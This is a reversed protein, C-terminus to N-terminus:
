KTRGNALEKKRALAMTRLESRHEEPLSKVDDSRKALVADLDVKSGVAAIEKAVEKLIKNTVRTSVKGKADHGGSHLPNDKMYLSNGFQNGFTRFARKMADTIAEKHSLELADAPGKYSIGSGYGVDERCVTTSGLDVDVQVRAVCHCGYMTKTDNYKKVEREEKSVLELSNIKLHWGDFGFIRNATDIVYHGEVYSLEGSGGMSRRKAVNTPDLGKDLEKTIGKLKEAHANDTM